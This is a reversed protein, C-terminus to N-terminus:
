AERYQTIYVLTLGLVHDPTIRLPCVAGVWLYAVFTPSVVTHSTLPVTIVTDLHSNKIELM